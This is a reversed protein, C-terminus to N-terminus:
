PLTNITEAGKPGFWVLGNGLMAMGNRVFLEHPVAARADSLWQDSFVQKWQRQLQQSSKIMLPAQGKVNVRLPFRIFKGAEKADSALVADRFGRVRAEFRDNSEDVIDAYLREPVGSDYGEVYTLAVALDKGDKSWTGGLDNSTYLFKDPHGGKDKYRLTFVGGDAEKLTLLFEGSESAALSGSLPIDKLHAVYFYHTAPGVTQGALDLTMGIRAPGLTGQLKYVKANAHTALSVLFLCAFLWIRRPM